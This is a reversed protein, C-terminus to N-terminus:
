AQGLATKLLQHFRKTHAARASPPRHAMIEQRTLFAAVKVDQGANPNGFDGTASIPGKTQIVSKIAAHGPLIDNAGAAGPGAGHPGTGDMVVGGAGPLTAGAGPGMTPPAFTAMQAQAAMTPNQNGLPPTASGAMGPLVAARKPRSGVRLGSPLTFPSFAEGELTSHVTHQHLARRFALGAHKFGQTFLEAAKPSATGAHDGPSSSSDPSRSCTFGGGSQAAKWLEPDSLGDLVSGHAQAHRNQTLAEQPQPSNGRSSVIESLLSPVDYQYAHSGRKVGKTVVKATTATRGLKGAKPAAPTSPRKPARKTAAQVKSMYTM